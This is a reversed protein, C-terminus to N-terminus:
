HSHKSSFTLIGMCMVHFIESEGHADAIYLASAVAGLVMGMVEVAFFFDPWFWGYRTTNASTIGFGYLGACGFVLQPIVLIMRFEPEYVGRNRKTMWAPISDSMLGALAFGLLAGIFAGTYMYGTEVETFFLPPGLMVAALIIGILVTWGILTGQILCAWLIGPHAFLPFPRLLLKFFNENSKRGDFLAVNQWFTKKAPLPSSSTDHLQQSSEGPASANIGLEKERLRSSNTIDEGLEHGDRGQGFENGDRKYAMEPCFLVMFPLLVGAFIAVFWFTWQWGIEATIKGVVVPTFFAGGFVAFNSVAQLPSTLLNRAM